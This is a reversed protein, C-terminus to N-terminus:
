AGQEGLKKGDLIKRVNRALSEPDFPKQLLPVGKPVDFAKIEGRSPYGSMLIVKIDPRTERIARSLDFGGLGPMVVDSVLLDIPGEHDDEIELAEFGDSAALVTYGVEELTMVALQRLADDQVSFKAYSDLGAKPFKKRLAAGVETAEVSIRIGGGGPMADRANVALNVLMQSLQATDTEVCLQEDVADVSLTVIEGLLPSLMTELESVLPAVRVVTTELVQRRSFALLQKTLSAAKDTAAVIESLATEVRERDAPDALARKAYGGTIMLLNNFDHAIGGALQGLSSLRESERVREELHKQDTVDTIITGVGAPSGRRGPIPFRIVHEFREDDDPARREQEHVEGTQLVKLDGVALEAAMEADLIDYVSKGQFSDPDSGLAEAFPKNVLTYRGRRDKLAIKLPANDVIEKLRTESQRLAEERQKRTTIDAISGIFKRKVGSKMERVALRIPFTSSDKRRGVLDKNRLEMVKGGRAARAMYDRLYGDHRKRDTGAMLMKVNQGDVEEAAYGFMAEAARNFSEIRGMEDIVVIGDAVNKMIASIYRERDLLAVAAGKQETIDRGIAVVSGEILDSYPRILLEIEAFSGDVRVMKLPIPAPEALLLEFGDAVLEKYDPALLDELLRGTIDTSSGAGLARIGAENVHIVRGDEVVCVLEPVTEVSILYPGSGGPLSGVTDAGAPVDHPSPSTTINADAVDAGARVAYPTGATKM